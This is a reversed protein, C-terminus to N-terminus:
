AHPPARPGASPPLYPFPPPGTSRPRMWPQPQRAAAERALPRPMAYPRPPLPMALGPQAEAQQARALAVDVTAASFASGRQPTFPASVPALAQLCAAALLLLALGAFLRRRLACPVAPLSM